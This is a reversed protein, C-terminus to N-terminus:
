MIEGPVIGYRRITNELPMGFLFDLVRADVGTKKRALERFHRDYRIMYALAEKDDAEVMRGIREYDSEQHHEMVLAWWEPVNGILDERTLHPQRYVAEIDRTDWCKMVRCEEPRDEYIACAAIKDDYFKCNASGRESKIKIIDTALPGAKNAVNDFAPEGQRVTYIDALKIRGTEILAKDSQHFAPGGKRCCTGCRQCESIGAADATNAADEM